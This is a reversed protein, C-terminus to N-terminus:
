ESHRKRDDIEDQEMMDLIRQLRQSMDKMGKVAMTRYHSYEYLLTFYDDVVAEANMGLIRETELRADLRADLDDLTMQRIEAVKEDTLAM